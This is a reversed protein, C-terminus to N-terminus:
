RVINQISLVAKRIPNRATKIDAIKKIEAAREAIEAEYNGKLYDGNEAYEYNQISDLFHYYDARLPQVYANQTAGLILGKPDQVIYAAEWQPKINHEKAFQAIRVNWASETNGRSLYREPNKAVDWMKTLSRAAAFKQKKDMGKWRQKLDCKAVRYYAMLGSKIQKQLEKKDMNMSGQNNKKSTLISLNKLFDINKIYNTSIQFIHYLIGM